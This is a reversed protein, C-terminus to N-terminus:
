GRATGRCAFYSGGPPRDVSAVGFAKGAYDGELIEVEADTTVDVALGAALVYIARDTETFGEAQRMRETANDVRARCEHTAETLELDGHGNYTPARTVLRASLYLGGLLDGFLAKTGGRLLGAM